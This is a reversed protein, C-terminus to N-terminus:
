SHWSQARYSGSLDIISMKLVLIGAGKFFKMKCIDVEALLSGTQATVNGASRTGFRKNMDDDSFVTPIEVSHQRAM